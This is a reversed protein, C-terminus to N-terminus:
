NVSWVLKVAEGLNEGREIPGYVRLSKKPPIGVDFVAVGLDEGGAGQFVVKAKLPQFLEGDNKVTLYLRNWKIHPKSWSLNFYGDVKGSGPLAAWATGISALALLVASFIALYKKM